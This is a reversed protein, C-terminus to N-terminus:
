KRIIFSYEPILDVLHLFADELEEIKPGKVINNIVRSAVGILGAVFTFIAFYIILDTPAFEQYGIYYGAQLGLYSVPGATWALSLLTIVWSEKKIASSIRGALSEGLNELYNSTTIKNDAM